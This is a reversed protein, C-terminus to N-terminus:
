GDAVVAGANARLSREIVWLEDLLDARRFYFTGAEPLLGAGGWDPAHRQAHDLSRLLKERIYTCKQRYPEYPNRHELLEAVKPFRAADDDLSCRLEESIAVQRI